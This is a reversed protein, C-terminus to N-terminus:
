GADMGLIARLEPIRRVIGLEVRRVRIGRAGVERLPVHEEGAGLGGPVQCAPGASLHRYDVAADVAGM